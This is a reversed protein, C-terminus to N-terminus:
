LQFFPLKSSSIFIEKKLLVFVARRICLDIECFFSTPPHYFLIDLLTVCLCWFLVCILCPGAVFMTTPPGEKCIQLRKTRCVGAAVEKSIV